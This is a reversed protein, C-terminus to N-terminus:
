SKGIIRGFCTMDNFLVRSIWLSEDVRAIRQHIMQGFMISESFKSLRDVRVAYKKQLEGRSSYFQRANSLTFVHPTLCFLIM